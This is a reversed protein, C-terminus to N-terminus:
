VGVRDDGAVQGRRSSKGPRNIRRGDHDVGARAEVVSALEPQPGFDADAGIFEMRSPRAAQAFQGAVLVDDLSVSLNSCLRPLSPKLRSNPAASDPSTLAM